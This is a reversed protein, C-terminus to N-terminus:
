SRWLFIGMQNTVFTVNSFYEDFFMVYDNANLTDQFMEFMKSIVFQDPIFKLAELYEDVAKDFM